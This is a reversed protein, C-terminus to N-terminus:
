NLSEKEAHLKSKLQSLGATVKDIMISIDDIKNTFMYKEDMDLMNDAKGYNNIFFASIEDAKLYPIGFEENIRDEQDKYKDLLAGKTLCNNLSNLV